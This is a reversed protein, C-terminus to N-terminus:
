VCDLLKAEVIPFKNKSGCKECVQLVNISTITTAPM